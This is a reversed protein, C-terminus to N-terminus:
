TMKLIPEDDSLTIQIENSLLENSLLEFTVTKENGFHRTNIPYVKVYFRRVIGGNGNSLTFRAHGRELLANAEKVDRRAFDKIPLMSRPDSHVNAAIKLGAWKRIVSSWFILDFFNM